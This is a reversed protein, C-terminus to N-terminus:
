EKSKAISYIVDGLNKNKGSIAKDFTAIFRDKQRYYKSNKQLIQESLFDILILSDTASPQNRDKCKQTVDFAELDIKVNNNAILQYSSEASEKRLDKIGEWRNKFWHKIINEMKIDNAELEAKLDSDHRIKQLHFFACNLDKILRNSWKNTEYRGIIDPDPYLGLYLNNILTSTKAKIQDIKNDIEAKLFFLNEDSINKQNFDLDEIYFEHHGYHNIDIDKQYLPAKLKQCHALWKPFVQSADILGLDFSLTKIAEPDKGTNSTLISEVDKNRPIFGNLADLNLQLPDEKISAISLNLQKKEESIRLRIKPKVRPKIYLILDLTSAANALATREVRSALNIELQNSVSTLTILKERSSARKALDLSEKLERYTM